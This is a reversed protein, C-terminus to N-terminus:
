LSKAGVPNPEPETIIYNRAAQAKLQKWKVLNDRFRADAARRQEEARVLREEANAESRLRKRLAEDVDAEHGQKQLSARDRKMTVSHVIPSFAERRPLNM